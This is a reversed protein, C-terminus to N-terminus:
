RGLSARRKQFGWIFRSRRTGAQQDLEPLVVILGGPAFEDFDIYREYERMSAVVSQLIRIGRIYSLVDHRADVAGDGIKVVIGPLAFKAAVKIRHRAMLDSLKPPFISTLGTRSVRGDLMQEFLHLGLVAVLFQPILLM